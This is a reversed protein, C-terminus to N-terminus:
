AAPTERSSAPRRDRRALVQVEQRDAREVRHVVGHLELERERARRTRVHDRQLRARLRREVRRELSQNGVPRLAGFGSALPSWARWARRDRRCRAGCQRTEPARSCTRGSRRRPRIVLHDPGHHRDEPRVAAAAVLLGRTAELQEVEGGVLGFREGLLDLSEREGRSWVVSTTRSPLRRRAIGAFRLTSWRSAAACDSAGDRLLPQSSRSRMRAATSGRASHRCIRCSTHRSCRSWKQVGVIDPM